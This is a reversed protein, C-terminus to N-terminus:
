FRDSLGGLVPATVFQALAYSAVVVGYMLSVDASGRGTLRRLLDPLVPFMMGLGAADIAVIPLLVAVRRSLRRRNTNMYRPRM